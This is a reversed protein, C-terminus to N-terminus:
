AQSPPERESDYRESDHRQRALEQFLASRALLEEYTGADAIRGKDILYIISSERITSLRHAVCIITKQGSLRQIAATIERETVNDLAATAEDFFLIDPDKYLARAIVIRQRQGGSLSAGAERLKTYIGQPLERVFEDAAALRLAEWVREDDIEESPRGFVVNERVTGGTLYMKQPVYGIRRHWARLHTQLNKGDRLVEGEEPALMGMLLLLLTSKGGGSAGCFSVFAGRPIRLSVENLARRSAGPYTFSVQNLVLASEFRAEDSVDELAADFYAGPSEREAREVFLDPAVDQAATEFEEFENLKRRIAQLGKSVRSMAGTLRLGAFAFIALTPLAESISIGRVTLFLVFCVITVALLVENIGLPLRSLLMARRKVQSHQSLAKVYNHVFLSVTNNLRGDILGNFGDRLHQAARKKAQTEVKGMEILARQTASFLTLGALGFILVAGLTMWPDVIVLLLAVMFLTASDAIIQAVAGFCASFLEFVRHIRTTPESIGRVGFTELRAHLYGEFLRQSVHQNLKMLFRNLSFHVLNSLLNKALMMGVVVSGGWLVYSLQSLPGGAVRTFLRALHGARRGTEPDPELGAIYGFLAVMGTMELLGAVFLLGVLGLFQLRRRRDLLAWLTSLVRQILM